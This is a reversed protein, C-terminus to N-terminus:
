RRRKRRAIRRPRAPAKAFKPKMWSLYVGAVLFLIGLAVHWTHELAFDLGVSVHVSHPLLVYFLGALVLLLGLFKEGTM